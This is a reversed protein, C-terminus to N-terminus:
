KCINIGRDYACLKDGIQASCPDYRFSLGAAIFRRKQGNVELICGNSYMQGIDTVTGVYAYIPQQIEGTKYFLTAMLALYSIFVLIFIFMCVVFIKTIRDIAM